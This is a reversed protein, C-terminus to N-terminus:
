LSSASKEAFSIVYNTFDRLDASYLRTRLSASTDKKKSAICYSRFSSAILILRMALYRLAWFSAPM